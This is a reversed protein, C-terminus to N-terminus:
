VMRTAMHGERIATQLTRSGIADGLLVVQGGYGALEDALDRNPVNYGVMVVADAMVEWRDTSGLHQIEVRDAAISIPM